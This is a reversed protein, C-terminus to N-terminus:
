TVTHSSLSSWAFAICMPDVRFNSGRRGRLRVSREDRASTRCWSSDDDSASKGSVQRRAGCTKPGTVYQSLVELALSRARNLHTKPPDLRSATTTVSDDITSVITDASTNASARIDRQAPSLSTAWLHRQTIRGFIVVPFNLKEPEGDSM